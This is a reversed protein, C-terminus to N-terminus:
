RRPRTGANQSPSCNTAYTFWAAYSRPDAPVGLDRIKGLTANALVITHKYEDGPASM